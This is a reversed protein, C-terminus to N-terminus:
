PGGEVKDSSRRLVSQLIAVTRDVAGRNRSIVLQANHSMRAREEGDRLLAAVARGLDDSSRVRRAGGSSELAAAPEAFNETHPGFLVPVGVAAPELMNHGGIPVLSGGVFAAVGLQYLEGLRGLVDVLLVDEEEAAV